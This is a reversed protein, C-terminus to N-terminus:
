EGRSLGLHFRTYTDFDETRKFGLRDLVRGSRVNGHTVGAWVDTADLADRAHAILAEAALTAYGHGRADAGLWFGISYNPPNVPNLDIRGILAGDLRLGYRLNRDTPDALHERIDDLTANVERDYDGFETLHDRSARLLDHYDAADAVTLERLRLRPELTGIEDLRDSM